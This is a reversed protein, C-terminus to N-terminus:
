LLSDQNLYKMVKPTHSESVSLVSQDTLLLELKGSSNRHWSQVSRRAVMRGRRTELFISDPLKEQVQKFTARKLAKGRTTHLLVYNGMAEAGLIEDVLLTTKKGGIEAIFSVAKPNLEKASKRQFAKKLADQLREKEVPKLIYDVLDLAFGRAAHQPHATLAIVMPKQPLNELLDLGNEKGVSLDLFLLDVRQHALLSKAATLTEAEGILRVEPFDRLTQRFDARCLPEDEVLYATMSDPNM